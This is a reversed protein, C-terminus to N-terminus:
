SEIENQAEAEEVVERELVLDIEELSRRSCREHEVRMEGGADVFVIARDRREALDVAVFSDVVDLPRCCIRQGRPAVLLREPMCGIREHLQETTVSERDHQRDIGPDSGVAPEEEREL